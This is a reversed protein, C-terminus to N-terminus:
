LQVICRSIQAPLPTKSHVFPPHHVSAVRYLVVLSISAFVLFFYLSHCLSSYTVWRVVTGVPVTCVFFLNSPARMARILGKLTQREESKVKRQMKLSEESEERSLCGM